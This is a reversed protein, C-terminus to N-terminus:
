ESKVFPAEEFTPLSMEPFKQVFEALPTTYFDTGKLLSLYLDKQSCRSCTSGDALIWRPNSPMNESVDPDFVLQGLLHGTRDFFFLQSGGCILWGYGTSLVSSPNTPNAPANSHVILKNAEADYFSLQELNNWFAVNADRHWQMNNTSNSVLVRLKKEFTSAQFERDPEFLKADDSWRTIFKPGSEVSYSIRQSSVNTVIPSDQFVFQGDYSFLM